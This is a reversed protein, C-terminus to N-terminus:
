TTKCNSQKGVLKHSFKIRSYRRSFMGCSPATNNYSEAEWPGQWGPRATQGPGPLPDLHSPLQDSEKIKLCKEVSCESWQRGRSIPIGPWPISGRLLWPFGLVEFIRHSFLPPCKARRPLQWMSSRCGMGWKQTGPEPQGLRLSTTFMQPTFWPAPTHRCTERGKLYLTHFCQILLKNQYLFYQFGHM